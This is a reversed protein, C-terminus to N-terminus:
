SFAFLGVSRKDECYRKEIAKVEFGLTDRYLFLAPRNSKRVHLTVYSANYVKAMAEEISM